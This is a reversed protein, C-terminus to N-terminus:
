MRAVAVHWGQNELLTAAESAVTSKGSGARGDVVVIQGSEDDCLKEIVASADERPVLGFDPMSHDVRRRHRALSNHLAERVNPDRTILRPTFGRSELRDLVAQANLERHVHEDCLNRLDGRVLDPDDAYLSWLCAEVIRRLSDITHHEVYIGRLLVRSEDIETNWADSIHNLDSEDSQSLSELFEEVSESQRARTALTDLTTAASGLAVFCFRRGREIQLRADALVGETQLRRVTWTRYGSKVQEVWSVDDADVLEFEVGIGAEGLPELRIRRVKGMLMEAIRLVTWLHENLNGAKDAAGGPMAKAM